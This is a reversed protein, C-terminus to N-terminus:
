EGVVHVYITSTYQGSLMKNIGEQDGTASIEDILVEVGGHFESYHIDHGQNTVTRKTASIGPINSGAVADTGDFDMYEGTDDNILRATYGISNYPTHPESYNVSSHVLEFGRDESHSSDNSASLFIYYDSYDSQPTDLYYDGWYGGFIGLDHWDRTVVYSTQNVMLDIEAVREMRRTGGINLNMAAPLARVDLSATETNESPDINRSYYGSLPITLSETRGNFEIDITVVASYDDAEILNYKRQGITLVGTSSVEGAPLSIVLDCWLNRYRRDIRGWDADVGPYDVNDVSSDSTEGLTYYEEDFNTNSTIGASGVNSRKLVLKIEFPRKADPNSRSTFYFGGDCHATITMGKPDYDENWTDINHVGVIGIIEADTYKSREGTSGTTDTLAYDIRGDGSPFDYKTSAMNLGFGGQWPSLIFDAASIELLVLIFTISLATLKKRM